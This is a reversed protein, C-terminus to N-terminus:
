CPLAIQPLLYCDHIPIHLKLYMYPVRPGENGAPFTSNRQM